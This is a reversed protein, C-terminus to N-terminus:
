RKEPLSKTEFDVCSISSNWLFLVSQVHHTGHASEELSVYDLDLSTLDLRELVKEASLALKKPAAQILCCYDIKMGVEFELMSM